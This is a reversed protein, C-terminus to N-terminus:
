HSNWGKFTAIIIYPQLKASTFSNRSVFAPSNGSTAAVAPPQSSQQFSRRTNSAAAVAPLQSQNGTLGAIHRFINKLNSNNNKGYLALLGFGWVSLQTNELRPVITPYTVWHDVGMIGHMTWGSSFNQNM